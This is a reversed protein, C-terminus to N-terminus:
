PLMAWPQDNPTWDRPETDGGDEPPDDEELDECGDQEDLWDILREVLAELEHRSLMPLAQSILGLPLAPARGVTIALWAM